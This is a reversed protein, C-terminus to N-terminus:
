FPTDFDEDAVEFEEVPSEEKKKPPDLFDIQQCVVEAVTRKDGDKTEYQRVQLRGTIGIKSGKQQYNCLNEALKEWAVCQIFDAEKDKGFGRDVAVTFSTVVKGSNTAKLDLDRVIRGTICINNM